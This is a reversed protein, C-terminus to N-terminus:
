EGSKHTQIHTMLHSWRAFKEGCVSCSFPKEGTHKRMHVDMDLKRSYAKGCISCSFPKEGTHVRMHIKMHYKRSFSKACVSCTFPREGTHTRTHCDLDTKRCFKKGCVSCSFRKERTHRSMHSILREKLPFTKKCVSCLFPQELHIGMHLEMYKKRSFVKGCTSCSFPIERTHTEVHSILASKQSFSKGCTSCRFPKEGTHMRMHRILSSRQTLGKRCISCSFPKVGRHMAKNAFLLGAVHKQPTLLSKHDSPTTEKESCKSQKDDGECDADSRLTEELNDNDSLPALLKDPPPGRCDDENPSHHHLRSCEPAEDEPKVCVGTPPFKSAHVKEEEKDNPSQPDEHELKFCGRQLLPSLEEQRGLLQQVDQLSVVVQTKTVAQLQRRHRETEDRARCLKAEYSAITTEFLGFIEDAAAILRERVLEKLM